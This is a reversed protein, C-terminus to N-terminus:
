LMYMGHLFLSENCDPCQKNVHNIYHRFCDVHFVPQYECETNKCRVGQLAVKNCIHCQQANLSELYEELEVIGRLDLGFFGEETRYFWKMECLKFLLQESEIASLDSIELLRKSGTAYIVASDFGSYEGDSSVVLIKDIEKAVLSKKPISSHIANASEIFQSVCSKVFEIEKPTFRTAFKAEDNSIQNVYVWFKNTEPLKVDEGDISASYKDVAANLIGQDRSNVANKGIGHQAVIIKYKLPDLKLNIANICENLLSEWRRIPLKVVEDNTRLNSVITILAILLVNSHCIGRCDLIYQLLYKTVNNPLSEM